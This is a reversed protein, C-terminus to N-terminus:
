TWQLVTSKRAPSFDAGQSILATVPFPLRRIHKNAPKWNILNTWLYSSDSCLLDKNRWVNLPSSPKTASYWVPIQLHPSFVLLDSITSQRIMVAFASKNERYQQVTFQTLSDVPCIHIRIKYLFWYTREKFYRCSTIPQPHFAQTDQKIEVSYIQKLLNQIYRAGLLRAQTLLCPASSPSSSSGAGTSICKVTWHKPNMGLSHSPFYKLNGCFLNGPHLHRGPHGPTRCSIDTASCAILLAKPPPPPAVELHTIPASVPNPHCYVSPIPFRPIKPLTTM